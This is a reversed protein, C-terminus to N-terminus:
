RLRYRLSFHIGRDQLDGHTDVPPDELRRGYFLEAEWGDWAAVLGLGASALRTAPAGRDRARGADIFPVLTLRRRDAAGGWLAHHHELGIAWGTDRVLQNERYGRVTGRGGLSLQELPVLRDRGIQALARLQWPAGGRGSGLAVQAQGQWYRYHRPAQEALLAPEALNNRGGAFTSRLAAVVAERRLTLEQTFRWTRTRTTGTSEGAVFSFPEGDLTSRHERATYLVGLVLRQRADDIVPHSLGAERTRVRSAIGLAQLPEETVSSDGQALRLHALTRGAALPVTAGLEGQDSGHSHGLTLMLADGWGTFNRLAATAGAARSGTAPAQHNHAWLTLDWVPARTADVELVAQGPEAGPSLRLNLRDFLPDALLLHMREQLQNVDLPEGARALRAQVYAPSLRGLGQMRWQDIRGEIVRVQLVGEALRSDDLRAGSSVYGRAIYMRTVRQRLEELDTWRLPRNLLPQALAQLEAEDIVSAGTYSVHRLVIPGAPSAAATSAVAPAAGAGQVVSLGAAPVLLAAALMSALRSAARARTTPL